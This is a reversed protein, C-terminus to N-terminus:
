VPQPFVIAGHWRRGHPIRQASIHEGAQQGFLAVAYWEIGCHNDGRRKHQLLAAVMHIFPKGADILAIQEVQQFGVGCTLQLSVRIGQRDAQALQFLHAANTFEVIQDGCFNVAEGIRDVIVTLAAGHRQEAFDGLRSQNNVGFIVRKHIM